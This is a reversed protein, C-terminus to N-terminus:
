LNRYVVSSITKMAERASPEDPYGKTMIALVYPERKPPFVIGADHFFDGTWGSKSAVLVDGPVGPGVGDKFEQRLLIRIMEESAQKSAVRGEAIALLLQMLGHATAANNLCQRFAANDEPGRLVVLGKVSLEDLFSRVNAAGVHQILINTALNSSRVIMLRTLERIQEAQGVREYLSTESDDEVFNSFPNGAALSPFSNIVPIQQELSLKGQQAQHFVEAMVAVKMTSAAHFSEDARCLYEMGTELDHFAVSISKGTQAVIFDELERM